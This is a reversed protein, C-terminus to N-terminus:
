KEKQENKLTTGIQHRLNKLPDVKKAASKLRDGSLHAYREVMTYSSWGGLEKLVPLSTGNQVHWSAWTHRLDHWRFNEIGADALCKRWTKTDPRKFPKGRYTFVRSPHKGKQTKLIEMATDNLPIAIPKKAKAQDAHIWAHCNEEDIQSWEIQIANSIRLGTALSFAIAPKLHLPAVELLKDAQEVTIWRVRHNEEDLEEIKPAKSLWFHKNKDQWKYAAKRLVARLVSLYRNVTAPKRNKALKDILEQIIDLTIDELIIDGLNKTLWLIKSKDKKQEGKSKHHIENLYRNAAHPWTYLAKDGLRTQRWLREKLKDEYEQALKKIATGTSIRIRQGNHTFNTYYPRRGKRKKVSM